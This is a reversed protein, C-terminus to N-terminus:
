AHQLVFAFKNQGEQRVIDGEAFRIDAYNHVLTKLTNFNHGFKMPLALEENFVIFQEGNYNFPEIHFSGTISTLEFGEELIKNDLAVLDFNEKSVDYCFRLHGAEYDTGHVVFDVMEVGNLGKFFDIMDQACLACEVGNIKAQFQRLTPVHIGKKTKKKLSNVVSQQKGCGSLGFLLILFLGYPQRM